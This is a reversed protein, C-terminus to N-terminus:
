GRGDNFTMYFAANLVAVPHVCAVVDAHLLM